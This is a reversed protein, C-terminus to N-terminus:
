ISGWYGRKTIMLSVFTETRQVGDIAGIKDRLFNGLEESSPLAVWAFMDFTGTTVSVWYTEEIKSIKQVVSDTKDPDVQLGILAETSFGLVKPEPYAVVKIVNNQTLRKLRRRITGESVGLTRAIEANSARGNAQLANIITKDLQDLSLM